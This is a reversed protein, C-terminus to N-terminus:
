GSRRSCPADSPASLPDCLWDPDSYLQRLCQVAIILCEEIKTCLAIIKQSNDDLFDAYESMKVTDVNM